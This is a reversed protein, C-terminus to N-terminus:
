VVSKRDRLDATRQRFAQPAVVSDGFSAKGRRDAIPATKQVFPLLAVTSLAASDTTRILVQNLWKSWNLIQLNPVQRIAQLYAPPIPLDSSDLSLQQRTRRGIARQSLFDDPRSLSFPSSNKDKIEVIFRSYQAHGTTFIQCAGFLLFIHPLLIRNKKM